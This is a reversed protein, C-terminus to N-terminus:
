ERNYLIKISRNKLIFWAALVPSMVVAMMLFTGWREDHHVYQPLLLVSVAYALWLWYTTFDYLNKKYSLLGNLCILNAPVIILLSIFTMIGTDGRILFYIDSLKLLTWLSLVSIVFWVGAPRGKYEKEIVTKIWASLVNYYSGM